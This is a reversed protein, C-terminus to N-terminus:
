QVSETLNLISDEAEFTYTQKQSCPVQCSNSVDFSCVGIVGVHVIADHHVTTAAPRSHKDIAPGPMVAIRMIQQIDSLHPIFVSLWHNHFYFWTHLHYGPETREAETTDEVNKGKMGM